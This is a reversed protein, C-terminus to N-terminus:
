VQGHILLSATHLTCYGQITTTLGTEHEQQAASFCYVCGKKKPQRQKKEMEQDKGSDNVPLFMTFTTSKWLDNIM